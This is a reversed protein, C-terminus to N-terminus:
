LDGLVVLRDGEGLKLRLDTPPNLTPTQEGALHVGIAVEGRARAASRLEDFTVGRGFGLLGGDGDTYLTAPKLVIERGLPSLLESYISKLEPQLAFQVLIGSCLENPLVFDWNKRPWRSRILKLMVPSHIEGVVRPVQEGEAKAAQERARARAAWVGARDTGAPCLRM